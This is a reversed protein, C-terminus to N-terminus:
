ASQVVPKQRAPALQPKGARKNAYLNEDARKLLEESTEGPRYDAWGRSFHCLITEGEYEVQLGDVRGLVHKVEEMRCEPLIVMFEDGGLRAALDSGRIARQLRDAFGKLLLDGAAHGLRDNIQKLGDLDLLLLTLPRGHRVARSIEEAMRLEGSRRNYLGTLQDLAALKYVENTLTEVRSISEFQDAIQNRMRIIMTQQYVLYVSFLLVIGVLARVAQNLYFSYSSQERSLLAPFAFSAVAVTLLILVMVTTSWLWWQRHDLKRMRERFVQPHIKLHQQSTEPNADMM